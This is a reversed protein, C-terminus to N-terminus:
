PHHQLFNNALIIADLINVDNDSNIDANRNWSSSFWISGFRMPLFSNSLIIADLINVTGDGNVDGPIGVYIMGGTFNNDATDTESPVPAAYASITYNGKFVDTTNWRFTIITSNGSPLTVTRQDEMLKPLGLSTWIDKGSNNAFIAVESLGVKGDGDFDADPNYRSDGAGHGFARAIEYWDWNDVYGDRNVDGMSWFVRSNAGDPWQEIMIATQDYYATVKFTETANGQNEVTVTIYIAYGQGVVTKCCTLNGITIDHQFMSSDRAISSFRVEDIIGDISDLWPWDEGVWKGITLPATNDTFNLSGVLTESQIVDNFYIRSYNGDYVISVLVWQNLPPPICSVGWNKTAGYDMLGFSFWPTPQPFSSQEVGYGCLDEAVNVSGNVFVKQLFRNWHQGNGRDARSIQRLYTWFEITFRPLLQLDLSGDPNDPVIVYDNWQDLSLAYDASSNTFGSVWSPDSDEANLTPGLMGDNHHPSEDHVVQGQGENFHWLALTYEDVVFEGNMSSKGAPVGDKSSKAAANSLNPISSTFMPLLLMLTFVFMLGIKIKM